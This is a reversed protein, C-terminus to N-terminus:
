HPHSRPVQSKIYRWARHRTRQTYRKDQSCDILSRAVAESWVGQDVWDLARSAWWDSWARAAYAVLRAASEDDLDAEERPKELLPLLSRLDDSTAAM